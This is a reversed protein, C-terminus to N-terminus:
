SRKVGRNSVYSVFSSCDYIHVTNRGKNKSHYLATDAQKYLQNFSSKESIAKSVGISASITHLRGSSDEFSKFFRRLIDEAKKYIFDEDYQMSMFVMFEDGGIRGVIDDKRFIWKLEEALQKLVEDGKAHGFYDNVSKFNDVDIIILVGNEMKLKESVLFETTVKNYLGTLGDKEARNKLLLEERKEHDIDVFYAFILIDNTQDDCITNTIVQVWYYGEVKDLLRFELEHRVIGQHYELILNNISMM